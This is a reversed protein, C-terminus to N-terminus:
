ENKFWKLIIFESVMLNWRLIIVLKFYNGSLSLTMTASKHLNYKSREQEVHIFYSAM